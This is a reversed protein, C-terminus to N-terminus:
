KAEVPVGSWWQQVTDAANHLFTPINLLVAHFGPVFRDALWIGCALVLLAVLGHWLEAFPNWFYPQGISRFYHTHRLAKLPASLVNYAFVLLIVGAWVPLSSPLPLGFVSHTLLLSLVAFVGLLRLLARLASLLPMGPYYDPSPPCPPIGPVVGPAPLPGCNAGMRWHFARKHQRVEHRFKRKWERRAHRDGLSKMGAYYGERALRIFEQATPSPGAAAAREEPTKAEPIFLVLLNYALLAFTLGLFWPEAAAEGSGTLLAILSALGSAGIVLGVALMRIITVDIGTYASLGACIGHMKAGDSIRFLRKASGPQAVSPKATQAGARSQAGAEEGPTPASGDTVPGIEAIVAQAEATLVVNHNANLLTRFKDAIAQEIDALIEAQDPNAALQREAQDLYARLADYGGEELQFAVGHLHITIVKNM